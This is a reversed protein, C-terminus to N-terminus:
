MVAFYNEVAFDMFENTLEAPRDEYFCLNRVQM